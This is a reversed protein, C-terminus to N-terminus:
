LQFDDSIVGQVGGEFRTIRTTIEVAMSAANLTFAQGAITVPKAAHLTRDQPDYDISETTLRYLSTAASVRGSVNMRSSDTHITGQDATLHLNDGDEMFFEVVPKDLLMIKAQENLTASDAELRWEKIGNKSATQRIKSLQMDAGKQVLDLMATPNTKMQRYGFFLGVTALLAILAVALMLRRILKPHKM